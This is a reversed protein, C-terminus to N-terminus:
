PFCCIESFISFHPNNQLSDLAETEECLVTYVSICHINTLNNRYTEESIGRRRTQERNVVLWLNEIMLFRCTKLSNSWKRLLVCVFHKPQLIPWLSPTPVWVNAIKVCFHALIAHMPPQRELLSIGYRLINVSATRAACQSKLAWVRGHQPKNAGGFMNTWRVEQSYLPPPMKARGSNSIQLISLNRCM